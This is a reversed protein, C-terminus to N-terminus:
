DDSSHKHQPSFMDISQKDTGVYFPSTRHEVVSKAPQRVCASPSEVLSVTYRAPPVGWGTNMSGSLVTSNKRWSCGWWASGLTNNAWHKNSINTTNNNRLGVEIICM